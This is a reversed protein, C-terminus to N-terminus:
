ERGCIRCPRPWEVPHSRGVHWLNCSDCRYTAMPHGDSRQLDAARRDALMKLAFGKKPTGKGTLHSRAERHLPGTSSTAPASRRTARSRAVGKNAARERAVWYTAGALVAYALVSFPGHFALEWIAAAIVIGRPLRNLSRSVITGVVVAVGACIWGVVAVGAALVSGAPAGHVPGEATFAAVELVLALAYIVWLHLPGSRKTRDQWSAAVKRARSLWEDIPTQGM